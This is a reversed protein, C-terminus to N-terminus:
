TKTKVMLIVEMGNVRTEVNNIFCGYHWVIETISNVPM